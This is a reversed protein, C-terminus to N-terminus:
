LGIRKSVEPTMGGTQRLRADIRNMIGAETKMIPNVEDSSKGADIADMGPSPLFRYWRALQERNADEVQEITPYM